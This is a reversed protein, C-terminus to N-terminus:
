ALNKRFWLKAYKNKIIKNAYFNINFFLSRLIKIYIKKFKLILSCNFMIKMIKLSILYFIKLTLFNTLM